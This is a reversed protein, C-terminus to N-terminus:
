RVCVVPFHGDSLREFGRNHLTVGLVDGAVLDTTQFPLDGTPWGFRTFLTNNPFADLLGALDAGM